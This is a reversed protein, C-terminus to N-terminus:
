RFVRQYVHLYSLKIRHCSILNWRKIWPDQLCRLSAHNCYNWTGRFRYHEHSTQWTRDCPGWNSCQLTFICDKVWWGFYDKRWKEWASVTCLNNEPEPNRRWFSCLEDWLCGQYIWNGRGSSRKRIRLDTKIYLQPDTTKRRTWRGCFSRGEWSAGRWKGWYSCYKYTCRSDSGRRRNDKCLSRYFYPKHDWENKCCNKRRKGVARSGCQWSRNCWCSEGAREGTERSRSWSSSRIREWLFPQKSYWM